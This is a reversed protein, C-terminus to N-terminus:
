ANDKEYGAKMRKFLDLSSEMRDKLQPGMDEGNIFYTEGNAIDALYAEILKIQENCRAIDSDHKGM